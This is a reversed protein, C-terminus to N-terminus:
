APAQKVDQGAGDNGKNLVSLKKELRAREDAADRSEGAIFQIDEDELDCVIESTFVDPLKQM